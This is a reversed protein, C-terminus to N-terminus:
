SATYWQGKSTIVTFINAKQGSSPVMSKLSLRMVMIGDAESQLGHFNLTIEGSLSFTLKWYLPPQVHGFQWKPQGFYIVFPLRSLTMHIEYTIWVLARSTWPTWHAKSKYDFLRGSVSDRAIIEEPLVATLNVKRTSSYIACFPNHKM